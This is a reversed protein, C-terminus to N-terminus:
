WKPMRATERGHFYSFMVVEVLNYLAVAKEGGVESIERYFERRVPMFQESLRKQQYDSGADLYLCDAPCSVRVLRHEGCCQSCIAGLAPLAAQRETTQLLRVASM